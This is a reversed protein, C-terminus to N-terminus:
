SFWELKDWLAADRDAFQRRLQWNPDGESPIKPFGAQQGNVTLVISKTTVFTGIDREEVQDVTLGRESAWKQIM